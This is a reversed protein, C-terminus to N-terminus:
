DRTLVGSRRFRRRFQQEGGQVCSGSFQSFHSMEHLDDDDTGRAYKSLLDARM